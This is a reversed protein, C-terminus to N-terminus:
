GTAYQIERCPPRRFIRSSMRTISGNQVLQSMRVYAQIIMRRSLPIRFESSMETPTILSGIGIRFESAATM